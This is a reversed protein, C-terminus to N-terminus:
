YDALALNTGVSPPPLTQMFVVPTDEGYRESYWIWIQSQTKKDFPCCFIRTTANPSLGPNDKITAVIEASNQAAWDPPPPGIDPITNGCKIKGDVHREIIYTTGLVHSPSPSKPADTTLVADICSEKEQDWNFMRTRQRQTTWDYFVETSMPSPDNIATMTCTM